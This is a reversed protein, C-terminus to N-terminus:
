TSPELQEASEQQLFKAQDSDQCLTQGDQGNVRKYVEALDRKRRRLSLPELQLPDTCLRTCRRQVKELENIDKQLWPNWVSSSTELIPRVIAKYIPSTVSRSHNTFCRRIMGLRQNAKKTIEAVHKSPKLDNSVIVGLDREQDVETLPHGDIFNTFHLSQRIM